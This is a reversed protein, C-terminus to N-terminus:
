LLLETLVHILQSLMKQIHLNKIEKEFKQTIPGNTVWGSDLVNAINKEESNFFPQFLKIKKSNKQM